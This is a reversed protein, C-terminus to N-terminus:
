NTSSDVCFLIDSDHPVFDAFNGWSLADQIFTTYTMLKQEWGPSPPHFSYHGRGAYILKTVKPLVLELLKWELSRDYFETPPSIIKGREWELIQRRGNEADKFLTAWSSRALRYLDYGSYKELWKADLVLKPQVW